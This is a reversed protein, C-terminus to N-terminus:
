KTAAYINFKNTKATINCEGLSAEILPPYQLFSNAVIVLQGNHSLYQPADNIFLETAAYFTKLGAHFPPNSILFQYPGTLTKYVDTATFKSAELNNVKFTEKASEIALASIDCLELDITQYKAKMVAGIVGAGCGFDLVKGHLKPLNNLLLESGKDFEGHSFVGPLSRVTLQVGAIDIPYSRFWDSLNFAKPTNDCRGWYFSCRRASDYKTLPGYEAFLKEASRVGSRNEGVICIEIGKGFKNLLMTLLYDAEAKAKPWYLLIMDIDLTETLEAGFYSSVNNFRKIDSYFGYNTTFVSVTQATQSLESAFTDSLEGAILVKRNEFFESQRAVVQSAACYSM